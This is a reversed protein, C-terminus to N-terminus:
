STLESAWKRSSTKPMGTALDLVNDLPIKEIPALALKDGFLTNLILHQMDVDANANPWSCLRRHEGLRDQEQDDTPQMYETFHCDTSLGPM